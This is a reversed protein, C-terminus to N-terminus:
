ELRETDPLADGCLRLRDEVHDDGVAPEAIEHPRDKQGEGAFDLRALGEGMHDLVAEEDGGEFRLRALDADVSRVVATEM